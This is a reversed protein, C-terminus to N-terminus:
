GRYTIKFVKLFNKIKLKINEKIHFKRDLVIKTDPLQPEYIKKSLLDFDILAPKLHIYAFLSIVECDGWRYRYGGAIKNFEKNFKMWNASKFM